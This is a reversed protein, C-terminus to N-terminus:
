NTATARSHCPARDPKMSPNIKAPNLSKEPNTHQTAQDPTATVPASSSAVPEQDQASNAGEAKKKTVPTATKM